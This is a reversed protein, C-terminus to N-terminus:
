PTRGPEATRAEVWRRLEAPHYRREGGETWTVRPGKRKREWQRLTESSVGLLDGAQTPTLLPELDLQVVAGGRSVYFGAPNESLLEGLTRGLHPSLNM